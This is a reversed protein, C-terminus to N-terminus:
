TYVIYCKYRIYLYCLCITVVFSFSSFLLAILFCASESSKGPFNPACRREYDKSQLMASWLACPRSVWLRARHSTRQVFRVVFSRMFKNYTDFRLRFRQSKPELIYKYRHSPVCVSYNANTSTGRSYIIDCACPSDSSIEWCKISKPSDTSCGDIERSDILKNRSYASCFTVSMLYVWVSAALISAVCPMHCTTLQHAPSCHELVNASYRHAVGALLSAPAYIRWRETGNTM